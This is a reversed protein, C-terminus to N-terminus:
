AFMSMVEGTYFGDFMASVKHERERRQHEHGLRDTSRQLKLSATTRKSSLDKALNMYELATEDSKVLGCILCLSFLYACFYMNFM